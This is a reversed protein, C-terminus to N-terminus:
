NWNVAPLGNFLLVGVRLIKCALTSLYTHTLLRMWSWELLDNFFNKCMCKEIERKRTLMSMFATHLCVWTLELWELDNFFGYTHWFISVRVSSFVLSGRDGLNHSVLTLFTGAYICVLCISTHTQSGSLFVHACMSVFCTWHPSMDHTNHYFACPM